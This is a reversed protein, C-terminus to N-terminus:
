RSPRDGSLNGAAIDIPDIWIVDDILKGRTGLRSGMIGPLILARPGGRVSRSAAERALERLEAYQEEGFYAELEAPRERSLLAREVVDDPLCYPSPADIPGRKPRRARANRASSAARPRKRSKTTLAGATAM